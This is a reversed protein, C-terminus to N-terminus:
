IRGGMAKAVREGYNNRRRDLEHERTLRNVVQRKQQITDYYEQAEELSQAAIAQEEVIWPPPKIMDAVCIVVNKIPNIIPTLVNM